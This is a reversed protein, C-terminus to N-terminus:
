LLTTMLYALSSDSLLTGTFRACCTKCSAYSCLKWINLYVCNRQYHLLFTFSAARSGAYYRFIKALYLHLKWCSCITSPTRSSCQVWDGESFFSPRQVLHKSSHTSLPSSCLAAFVASKKLPPTLYQVLFDGFDKNKLSHHQFSTCVHM